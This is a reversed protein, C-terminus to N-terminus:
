PVTVPFSGTLPRGNADIGRVRITWTGRALDLTGTLHGPGAAYLRAAHGDGATMTLRRLPAPAGAAELLYVHLDVTDGATDTDIQLRQGAPEPLSRTVVSADSTTFPGVLALTALLAVPALCALTVAAVRRGGSTLRPLAEDHGFRRLRLSNLVVAVSSLGMAAAALAPALVGAAALPLAVLNYSFAWALNERIVAEGARALALVEVVGRLDHALITADAAGMAVDTGAGVAIGLDAVALAAADNIGDGVMAVQHGAARLGEIEAVKEAPSAGASVQDIGVRGALARVTRETDGSLVRVQLGDRRLAAVVQAADDRPEDTFALAGRLVGDRTVAVVTLGDALWGEVPTGALAAGDPRTVEVVSGAVTARVGRGPLARFATAVPVATGAAAAHAVIARGVPHESGSEATAALAVLEEDSVGGTAWSAALEMRGTTLTGTKDFVVTDINRSRELTEGNRLLLGLTAGRTTAMLIAVPTALGLACPCAVVLV